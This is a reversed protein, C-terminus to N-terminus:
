IKTYRNGGARVIKKKIELSSLVPILKYAPLNLKEALTSVFCEGSDGIADMVQAEAETLKEGDEAIDSYGFASLIDEPRDALSAGQKILGNCGEGSTVGLSYPFAFLERGFEVAYGATILAGSKEGASVVLTGRSLGAIIRNRVPFFYNQPATTPYYESIVLGQKEVKEVIPGSSGSYAYNHGYALVSIARGGQMAGELAACDAGCANGTVITFKESLAKSFRKCQEAAWAATRRSGVISFCNTNLLSIDGRCFLVAPPDPINKLSEPYGGSICTVCQVDASSLYAFVKDRYGGDYFCDRVKNYVGDADSKILNKFAQIFDHASGGRLGRLKQTIGGLSALVILNTEDESYKM